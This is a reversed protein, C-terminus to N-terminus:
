LKDNLHLYKIMKIDAMIITPPEDYCVGLYM